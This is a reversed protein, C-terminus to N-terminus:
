VQDTSPSLIKWADILESDDHIKANLKTSSHAPILDNSPSQLIPDQQQDNNGMMSMSIEGGSEMIMKYQFQEYETVNSWPVLNVDHAIATLGDAIYEFSNRISARLKPANRPTGGASSIRHNEDGEYESAGHNKHGPTMLAAQSGSNQPPQHTTTDVSGVRAIGQALTSLFSRHTVPVLQEKATPTSPILISPISLREIQLPPITESDRIDSSKVPIIHVDADADHQKNPTVESDGNKGNNNESLSGLFISRARVKAAIEGLSEREGDDSQLLNSRRTVGSRFSHGSAPVVSNLKSKNNNSSKDSAFSAM